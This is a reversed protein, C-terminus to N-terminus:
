LLFSAGRVLTRQRECQILFALMARGLSLPQERHPALGAGPVITSACHPLRAALRSAGALHASAGEGVVILTPVFLSPLLPSQSADDGPSILLLGELRGPEQLALRLAVDGGSAYGAVYARPVALVHLLMVLDDLLGDSLAPVHAAPPRRAYEYVIVRCLEGLLPLAPTWDHITGGAAPILVLPFGEGEILYSIQQGNISLSPM